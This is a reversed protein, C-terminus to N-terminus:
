PSDAPGTLADGLGYAHRRAEFERVEHGLVMLDHKNGDMDRVHDRLIAEPRFGLTSFTAVAGQQDVTMQAIMKQVGMDLALLFAEHTLIRGLGRWAHIRRCARAARRHSQDLPGHLPPRDRLRARQLWRLGLVTTVEGSAIESLWQDVIAEDTIDRRMFMLDHAPLSRAFALVADRHRPEMRELSVEQGGLQHVIPYTRANSTTVRVARRALRRGAALSSVDCQWRCRPRVHGGELAMDRKDESGAM